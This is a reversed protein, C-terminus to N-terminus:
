FSLLPSDSYYHTASDFLQASNLSELSQLVKSDAKVFDTTITGFGPTYHNVGLTQKRYLMWGAPEMRKCMQKRCSKGWSGRREWGLLVLRAWRELGLTAM